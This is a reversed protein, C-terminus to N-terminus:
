TRLFADEPYRYARFIGNNEGLIPNTVFRDSIYEWVIQAQANVEFIRGFNGETILTNGNALRQAGSIFPSLFNMFFPDFYEWVVEDTAPDVEIVRSYPLSNDLRHPGNDFVLVNGSPLFSADHQQGVAPAGLRWAVQGTARDVRVVANTNRFSVLADGDENQDVSNGHTWELRTDSPNRVEVEPDLHEWAHWEWVIEGDRTAEVVYDTWVSDGETGALGGQLQPVLDDPVAEARLLLLNGNPLVRVDHHLDPDDFQWVVNGDWDLEMVIGGKFVFPPADGAPQHVMAMLNGNPLMDVFWVTNQGGPEVIDWQHAIQGNMDILFASFGLSPAFLTLGDFTQEPDWATLGTRIRRQKQQDVPGIAAQPHGNGNAPAGTATATAASDDGGCAGLVLGGAAAGGAVQLFGRRTLRRGPLAHKPTM